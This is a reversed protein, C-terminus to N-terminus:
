GGMRGYKILIEEEDGKKGKKGQEDEKEMMEMIHELEKKTLLVRPEEGEGKGEDEESQKGKPKPAMKPGKVCPQKEQVNCLKPPPPKPTTADKMIERDLLLDWPVRLGDRLIHGYREDEEEEEEEEEEDDDSEEEEDEEEVLEQPAENMKRGMGKGKGKMTVKNGTQTGRKKNQPNEKPYWDWDEDDVRGRKKQVSKPKGKGKAKPQSKQGGKQYHTGECWKDGSSGPQSGKYKNRTPMGAIPAGIPQKIDTIWPSELVKPQKPATPIPRWSAEPKTPYTKGWGAKGPEDDEETTEIEVMEGEMEEDSTGQSNVDTPILWYNSIVLEGKRRIQTVTTKSM